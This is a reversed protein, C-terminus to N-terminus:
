EIEQRHRAQNEVLVMMRDALGPLLDEYQRLMHPPPLVGEFHTFEQVIQLVQERKGPELDAILPAVVDTVSADKISPPSNDATTIHDPNASM